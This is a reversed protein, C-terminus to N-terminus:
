CHFGLNYFGEFCGAPMRSRSFTWGRSEASWLVRVRQPIRSGHIILYKATGM